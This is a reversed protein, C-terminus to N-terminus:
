LEPYIDKYKQKEEKQKKDDVIVNAIFNVTQIKPDKCDDTKRAVEEYKQENVLKKLEISSKIQKEFFNARKIGSGLYAATLLSFLVVGSTKELDCIMRSAFVGCVPIVLSYVINKLKDFKIMRTTIYKLDEKCEKIEEESYVEEDFGNEEKSFNEKKEENEM